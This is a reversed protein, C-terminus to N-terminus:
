ATRDATISKKPLRNVLVTQKKIFRNAKNLFARALFSM